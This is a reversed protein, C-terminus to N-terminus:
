LGVAMPSVLIIDDAYLLMNIKKYQFNCGGDVADPFDNDFMCFMLNSLICGQKPGMNTEFSSTVDARCWVGSM